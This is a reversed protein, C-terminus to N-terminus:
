GKFPSMKPFIISDVQAKTGTFYCVRNLKLQERHMEEARVITLSGFHYGWKFKM